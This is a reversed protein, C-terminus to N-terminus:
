YCRKVGCINDRHVTEDIVVIEIGKGSSPAHLMCGKGHYLGVHYVPGRGKDKAFFVLDGPQCDTQVISVGQSAQDSADRPIVIGWAKHLTYTFGSCDFGFGSIGGWLYPLGLFMEGSKVLDMGKPRPIHAFNPYITADHKNILRLGHPTLVRLEDKDFANILPFTTQYSVELMKHGDNTYIFATPQKIVAMKRDTHDAKLQSEAIVQIAPLWGPYGIEHKSTPQETAAVKFWDGQKELLTVKEGYLVQTQIINDDSLQRRETQSLGKLWDRIETPSTLAKRDCERPTSPSTWLTAVAVCVRYHEVM